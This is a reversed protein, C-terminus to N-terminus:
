CFSGGSDRTMQRGKAKEKQILLHPIDKVNIYCAMTGETDHNDVIQYTEKRELCSKIGSVKCVVYCDLFEFIYLQARCQGSIIKAFETPNGSIRSYRISLQGYKAMKLRRKRWAIGFNGIVYDKDQKVDQDPTTVLMISQGYQLDRNVKPSNTKRTEM